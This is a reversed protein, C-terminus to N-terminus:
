EDGDLAYNTRDLAGWLKTPPSARCLSDLHVARRSRLGTAATVIAADATGRDNAHQTTGAVMAWSKYYWRVALVM